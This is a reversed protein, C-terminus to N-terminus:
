VPVRSGGSRYSHMISDQVARAVQDATGLPQNVNVNVIPLGSIAGGAVVPRGYQDYAVGNKGVIANPLLGGGVPRDALSSKEADTKKKAETAANAQATAEADLATVYDWQAQTLKKLEDPLPKLAALANQAEVALRAFESSQASTLQGSRTLADIGALMTANLEELENVRLNQVSMGAANMVDTWVTAKQLAATGFVQDMVQGMAAGHARVATEIEKARLKNAEATAKAQEEEAKLASAVARIQSESIKYSDRVTDQAVGLQLLAKAGAVIDPNMQRLVWHWNQVALGVETTAKTWKAQEEANEKAADKHKKLWETNVRVAEDMTTIERGARQSALALADATAGATEKALDGWGMWKAVSNGIIDDTGALEAVWRGFKVGAMAAGVMLGATALAGLQTATKGSAASIEDLGKVVPGIHIGMASLASDFQSFTSNLGGLKPKIKDSEDGLGTIARGAAYGATEFEHLSTEAKKTEKHFESFDAAFKATIAAM